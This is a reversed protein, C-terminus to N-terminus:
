PEVLEGIAVVRRSRCSEIAACNWAITKLNDEIGCPPETDDRLAALFAEVVGLIETHLVPAIEISRPAPNPAEEAGTHLYYLITEGDSLDLSGADGM